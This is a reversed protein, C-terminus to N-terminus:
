VQQELLPLPSAVSPMGNAAHQAHWRFYRRMSAARKLLTQPSKVGFAAKLSEYATAGTCDSQMDSSLITGMGSATWDCSLLELWQGCALELQRGKNQFYDLDQLNQVAKDFCSDPPAGQLSDPESAVATVQEALPRDPEPLFIQPAALGSTGSFIDAMVGTEWPLKLMSPLAAFQGVHSQVGLQWQTSSVSCPLHSNVGNSCSAASDNDFAAPISPSPYESMEDVDFLKGSHCLPDNWLNSIGKAEGTIELSCDPPEPPFPHAVGDFIPLSGEDGSLEVAACPKFM